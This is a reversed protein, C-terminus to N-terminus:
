NEGKGHHKSHCNSCLVILDDLNEHEYGHHEYTKHHVQLNTNCNCLSCKYGSLYLKKSRVADWYPTNLFDLYEMDQIYEAIEQENSNSLYTNIEAWKTFYKVGKNFSYQPNLYTNIFKKTNEERQEKKEQKSILNKKHLEEIELANCEPCTFSHTFFRETDYIQSVLRDKSVKELLYIKHCKICKDEVDFLSYDTVSSREGLIEGEICDSMYKRNYIKSLERLKQLEEFTILNKAKILNQRKSLVRLRRELKEFNIM